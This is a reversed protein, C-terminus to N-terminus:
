SLLWFLVHVIVLKAFIVYELKKQYKHRFSFLVKKRPSLFSRDLFPLILPFRPYYKYASVLIYFFKSLRQCQLIQCWISGINSLHYPLMAQWWWLSCGCFKWSILTRLEYENKKCGVICFLFFKCSSLCSGPSSSVGDCRHFSILLLIFPFFVRFTLTAICPFYLM